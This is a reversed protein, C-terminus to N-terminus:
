EMFDRHYAFNPSFVGERGMLCESFVRHGPPPGLIDIYIM